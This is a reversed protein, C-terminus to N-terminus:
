VHTYQLPPHVIGLETQACSPTLAKATIGPRTKIEQKRSKSVKFLHYREEIKNKLSDRKTSYIQLDHLQFMSM